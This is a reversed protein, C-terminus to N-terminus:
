FLSIVSASFILNEEPTLLHQSHETSASNELVRSMVDSESPEANLTDTGRGAM